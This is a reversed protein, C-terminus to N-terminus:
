YVKKGEIYTAVVNFDKDLVTINCDYGNSILGVNNLGLLQAPNFSAMLFAENLPCDSFEYMNKVANNMELVSGALVGSALRAENGRKIVNQGGLDYNGNPMGKARMADTILTINRWGKVEYIMKVVDPHLHIGDVILEVNVNKNSLGSTVVGPQRHHHGSAANHFHTFNKLGFSIADNVQSCTANSHGVSPIVGKSVLHKTFIYDIDKEPAYTVMKIIHQDNLQDFLKNDPIHVFEPNQAGIFQESIFPGELHLGYIEAGAEVNNVDIVNDIAQKIDSISCTMTTPLFGTTGEKPLDRCITLLSKETADMTDCGSCGHIHLDIFGPVIYYGNEPIDLLEGSEFSIKGHNSFLNNEYPIFNFERLIEMIRKEFINYCM